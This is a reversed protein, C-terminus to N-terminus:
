DYTQLDSAYEKINVVNTQYETLGKQKEDLSVILDRTEDTIQNEAETLEKMLDDQLKDLHHNIRTRLERALLMCTWTTSNTHHLNM